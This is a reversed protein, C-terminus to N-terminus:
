LPREDDIWLLHLHSEHTWAESKSGSKRGRRRCSSVSSKEALGDVGDEDQDHHGDHVIQDVREDLLALQVERSDEQPRPEKKVCFFAAAVNHLVCKRM